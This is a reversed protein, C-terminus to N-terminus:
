QEMVSPAFLEELKMLRPTLGQEYSYQAATELVKRNAKIGHRVLPTALAKRAEAPQKEDLLVGAMLFWPQPADPLFETMRRYVRLAAQRQQRALYASALLYNAQASQPHDRLVQQLANIAAAAGSLLAVKGRLRM